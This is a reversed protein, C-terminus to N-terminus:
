PNAKPMWAAATGSDTNRAPSATGAMPRVRPQRQAKAMASTTGSTPYPSAGGYPAAAPRATRM